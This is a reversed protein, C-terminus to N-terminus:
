SVSATKEDFSDIGPAHQPYRISPPAEFEFDLPHRRGPKPKGWETEEKITVWTDILGEKLYPCCVLNASGSSTM